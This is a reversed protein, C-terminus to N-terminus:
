QHENTTGIGDSAQFDEQFIQQLAELSVAEWIRGRRGPQQKFKGLLNQSRDFLLEEYSDALYIFEMRVVSEVSESKANAEDPPVKTLRVPGLQGKATLVDVIVGDYDSELFVQALEILLPQPLFFQGPPFTKVEKANRTVLLSQSQGPAIEYVLAGEARPNSVDTKWRYDKELPDFWLESKLVMVNYEFQRIQTKLAQQPKNSVSHRAYYYGQNKGAADKILFAEDSRSRRSLRHGQTRLFEDTLVHGEAVEQGPRYQISEAVSRFVNEGHFGGIGYSRVLLEISRNSKTRMIGMYIEEQPSSPLLMRAYVVPYEQGVKHFSQIVASIKQARQELLEQEFGDPTSFVYRWRVGMTGRNSPRFQGLLTMSSESEEYQWTATREWGPGAPVSVSLGSGPLSILDSLVVTARHKVILHAILLGVMFVALLAVEILSYRKVKKIDM